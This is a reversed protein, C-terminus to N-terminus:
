QPPRASAEEPPVEEEGRALAHERERRASAPAAPLPGRRHAVLAVAVVDEHHGGVGTEVARRRPPEVELGVRVGLDVEGALPPQDARSDGRGGLVVADPRAEELAEGPEVVVAAVRLPVDRDDYELRPLDTRRHTKYAM